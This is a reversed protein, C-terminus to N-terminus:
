EARLKAPSCGFSSWRVAAADGDFFAKDATRGFWGKSSGATTAAVISTTTAATASAVAATAAAYSESASASATSQATTGSASSRGNRHQPRETVRREVAVPHGGHVRPDPQRNPLGAVDDIYGEVAEQGVRYHDDPLEHEALVVSDVPVRVHVPHQTVPAGAPAAGEPGGGAM